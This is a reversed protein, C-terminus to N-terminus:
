KGFFTWDTAKWVKYLMRADIGVAVMSAPFAYQAAYHSIVVSFWTAFVAVVFYGLLQRNSM